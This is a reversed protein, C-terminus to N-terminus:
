VVLSRAFSWILVFGKKIVSRKRKAVFQDDHHKFFLGFFATKLSMGAEKTHWLSVHVTERACKMPLLLEDTM